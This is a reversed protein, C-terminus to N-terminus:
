ETLLIFNEDDIIQYIDDFRKREQCKKYMKDIVNPIPRISAMEALSKFYIQGLDYLRHLHRKHWNKSERLRMEEEIDKLM